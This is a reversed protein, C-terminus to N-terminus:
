MKYDFRGKTVRITDCSGWTSPAMIFEFTGAIIGGPGRDLRTVVLEGTCYSKASSYTCNIMDDSFGAGHLGVTRLKYRGPGQISDSFVVLTQRHKAGNEYRYAGVNLNGQHYSRDYVVSFNDLGDFGQPTWVGGNLLCGFTNAGSQTVPPLQSEPSLDEKKCQSLGLLATLVLPFLTKM